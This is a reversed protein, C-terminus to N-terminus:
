NPSVELAQWWQLPTQRRQNEARMWAAMAAVEETSWTWFGMGRVVANLSLDAGRVYADVDLTDPMSAEIGFVSFGKEAALYEVIRHKLAFVERSGHTCEGLAVVRADGIHDGLPRLDDLGSGAKVTALPIGHTDLWGRAPQALPTSLLLPIWLPQM